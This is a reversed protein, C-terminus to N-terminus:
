RIMALFQDEDVVKIGLEEAKKLKSGASEGAIVLTTKKSVSGSVKGGQEEILDKVQDRSMSSLGGTLVVVEGSFIGGSIRPTPNAIRVGALLLEAITKKEEPSAFFDEVSKAVVPGIEGIEELDLATMSQLSELSGAHDALLKATRTGVHRIGLAYVFKALTIEKSKNIAEIVNTASKEAMRDLELLSEKKLTFIDQLAKVLGTETLQELLKEGLSDIDFATRSVFHKLREVLKAPCHPNSCRVATDDEKEKEAPSDCVPCRNPIKFKKETGTRKETLVTVVAPIVDGQRRVVVTDGIRIDKRDIEDQNHLTARKVVVGGVNVPELEAVPTLSGTRGVQVTIDLLKTFAEVPPFKLAVAWRPTRSRVGLYKQLELDNIKVVLGDIEFPLKERETISKRYHALIEQVDDSVLLNEQLLFGLEKLVKGVDSQKSVLEGEPSSIAYGFFSLPRKATIEPDLQRLSGSAANRPNAFSNENEAIRKQNLEEFDKIQLIVEGRVELTKPLTITKGNLNVKPPLIKPINNITEINRTVDEGVQGDGRTAGQKLKGNEFVLAVAVGDFKYETYYEVKETKDKLGKRVREDFELFEAEDMANALSLMPERHIVSSFPTNAIDKTGVKKTPSDAKVFQPFASELKELERFLLDYDADSISPADELYYERNAKEILSVLTEIRAAPSTPLTQLIKSM